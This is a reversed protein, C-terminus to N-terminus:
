EIKAGSEKVIKAWKAIDARIMAAFQEPTTPSPVASLDAFKARLDPADLARRVEHALREVIARPTAAPALLGFWVDVEFGPLGSEAITPIDPAVPSRTASTIGLARLKGSKIHPNASIVTAFMMAVEGTLTAQVAPAGGKYPVHTVRTGAMINFMEGVVHAVSGMGPSGFNLKGPASKVLAILEQVSRAPSSSPTVLILPVTAVVSIPAFDKGADYQLNTYISPNIANPALNGFVITYGDAPSKAVAATGIGGGAGPRNDIIVPQGLSETLKQAIIRAMIDTAGGAAFPAVIRIPKSPYDQQAIARPSVAAAFLALAAILPRIM